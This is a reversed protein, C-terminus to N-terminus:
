FRVRSSSDVSYYEIRYNHMASLSAGGFSVTQNLPAAPVTLDKLTFTLTTGTGYTFDVLVSNLTIDLLASLDTYL